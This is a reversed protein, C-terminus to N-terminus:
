QRPQPRRLGQPAGPSSKRLLGAALQTVSDLGIDTLSPGGNAQNRMAMMLAYRHVVMLADDLAKRDDSDLEYYLDALDVLRPPLPLPSADQPTPEGGNLVAETSGPEWRLASELRELTSASYSTRRAHEIDGVTRTSLHSEDALERIRM